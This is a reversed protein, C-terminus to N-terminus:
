LSKREHAQRIEQRPLHRLNVISGIAGVDIHGAGHHLVAGHVKLVVYLRVILGPLSHALIGAARIIRLLSGAVLLWWQALSRGELMTFYFFRSRSGM